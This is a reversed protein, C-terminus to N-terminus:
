RQNAPRIGSDAVREENRAVRGGLGSEPHVLRGVRRRMRVQEVNWPMM